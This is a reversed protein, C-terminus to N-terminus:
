EGGQDNLYQAVEADLAVAVQESVSESVEPIMEVYCPMSISVDIRLSEFNGLNRTVGANYRVYAPETIFDHVERSESHSEEVLEGKYSNSIMVSKVSEISKTKTKVKRRQRPKAAETM